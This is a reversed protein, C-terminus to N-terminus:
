SLTASSAPVGMKFLSTCTSWHIDDVKRADFHFRLIFMARDYSLMNGSCLLGMQTAAICADGVFDGKWNSIIPRAAMEGMPLKSKTNTNMVAARGDVDERVRTPRKDKESLWGNTRSPQDSRALTRKGL